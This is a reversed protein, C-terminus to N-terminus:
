AARLQLKATPGWPLGAGRAETHSETLHTCYSDWKCPAVFLLEPLTATTVIVPHAMDRSVNLLAWAAATAWATRDRHCTLRGKGGASPRSQPRSTPEPTLRARPTVLSLSSGPSAASPTMRAAAPDVGLLWRASVVLRCGPVRGPSSGGGGPQGRPKENAPIVAQSGM